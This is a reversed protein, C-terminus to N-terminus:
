SNPDRPIWLAFSFCLHSVCRRCCFISLGTNHLLLLVAVCSNLTVATSLFLMCSSSVMLCAQRWQISANTCEHFIQVWEFCLSVFVLLLLLLMVHVSMVLLTCCSRPTVAHFVMLSSTVLCQHITKGRSYQSHFVSGGHINGSDTMNALSSSQIYNKPLFPHTQSISVPSIAPDCCWYQIFGSSLSLDRGM